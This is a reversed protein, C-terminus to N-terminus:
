EEVVEDDVDIVVDGNGQPLDAQLKVDGINHIVVVILLRPNSVQYQPFM